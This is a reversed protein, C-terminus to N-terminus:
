WFRTMEALIKGVLDLNGGPIPIGVLEKDLCGKCYSKYHASNQKEDSDYFFNWLTPM